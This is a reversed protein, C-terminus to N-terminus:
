AAARVWAPDSYGTIGAACVANVRFWYIKNPDLDTVLYTSKTTVGILEWNSEVNPDGSCVFVQKMRSGYRSKWRLYAQGRKDTPQAVLNDPAGVLGIPDRPKSAPFGSTLAVKIDGKSAANVYQCLDVLLKGLARRYDNRLAVAVRDGNAAPAISAQLTTRAAAIDTLKPTPDTFNTNGTMADEIQLSYQVMEDANKKSIDTKVLQM